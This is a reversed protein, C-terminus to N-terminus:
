RPMEVLRSRPLATMVDAVAVPQAGGAVLQMEQRREWWARLGRVPLCYLKGTAAFQYFYWDAQTSLLSNPREPRVEFRFQSDDGSDDVQVAIAVREEQGGAQRYRWILDVGGESGEAVGVTEGRGRLFEAIGRVGWRGRDRGADRGRQTEGEGGGQTGREGGGVMVWVPEGFRSWCLLDAPAGVELRGQALRLFRAPTASAATLLAAFDAAGQRSLAHLEREHLPRGPSSTLLLGEGGLDSLQAPSAVRYPANTPAHAAALGCILMESALPNPSPQEAAQRDFICAIREAVLRRLLDPAAEPSLTVLAIAADAAAWLDDWAPPDAGLIVHLGLPRAVFPARSLGTVAGALAPLDRESQVEVVRAFSTIGCANPSVGNEERWALDILGPTIWGGGADIMQADAPVIVEQSRGLARITGGEVLVLGHAIRRAPTFLDCDVIALTPM